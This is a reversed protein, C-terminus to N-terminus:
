DRTAFDHVYIGVTTDRKYGLSSDDLRIRIEDNAPRM